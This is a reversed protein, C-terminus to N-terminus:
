TISKLIVDAIENYKIEEIFHGVNSFINLNSKLQPLDQLWQKLVSVKGLPDWKGIVAHVGIKNSNGSWSSKINKHIFDYFPKTTRRGIKPDIYTNGHGWVASQLVLRKSSKVNSKSLFQQKLVSRISHENNPLIGLEAMLIYKLMGLLLKMSGTPRAFM